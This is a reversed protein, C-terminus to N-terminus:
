SDNTKSIFHQIAGVKVQAVGFISDDRTVSAGDRIEESNVCSDSIEWDFDTERDGLDLV